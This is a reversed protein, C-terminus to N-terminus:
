GWTEEIAASHSQTSINENLVNINMGCLTLNLGVSTAEALILGVWPQPSCNQSVMGRSLNSRDTESTRSVSDWM